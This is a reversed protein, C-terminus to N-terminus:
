SLVAFVTYVSSHVPDCILFSFQRLMLRCCLRVSSAINYMVNLFHLELISVYMLVCVAGTALLRWVSMRWKQVRVLLCTCGSNMMTM